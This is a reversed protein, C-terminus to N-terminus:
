VKATNPNPVLPFMGWMEEPLAQVLNTSKVFKLLEDLVTIDGSEFDEKLKEIVVDVLEQKQEERRDITEKIIEQAYLNNKADSDMYKVVGDADVTAIVRGGEDKDTSKYGDIMTLGSDNETYDNRIEKWIRKKKAM